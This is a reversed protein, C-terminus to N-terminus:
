LLANLFAHHMIESGAILGLTRSLEPTIGSCAFDLHSTSFEACQASLRPLSSVAEPIASESPKPIALTSFKTLAAIHLENHEVVIKLPSAYNPNVAALAIAATIFKSIEEIIVQVGLEEESVEPELRLKGCSAVLLGTGGVLAIFSRRALNVQFRAV